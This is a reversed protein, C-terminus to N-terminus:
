LLMNKSNLSYLLMIQYHPHSHIFTIYSPDFYVGKNISICQELETDSFIYGEVDFIICIKCILSFISM